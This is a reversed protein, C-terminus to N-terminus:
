LPSKTTWKQNRIIDGKGERLFSRYLMFYYLPVAFLTLFIFAIVWTARKVPEDIRQVAHVLFFLWLVVVATSIVVGILFVIFDSM